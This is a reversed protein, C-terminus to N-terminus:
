ATSIPTWSALEGNQLLNVLQPYFRIAQNNAVIPKNNLYEFAVTGAANEIGVTASNGDEPTPTSTATGSRDRREGSCRRSKWRETAGCLLRRQAM